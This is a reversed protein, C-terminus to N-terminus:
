LRCWSLDFTSRRLVVSRPEYIGQPKGLRRGRAQESKTLNVFLPLVLPKKLNHFRWDLGRFKGTVTDEQVAVEPPNDDDSVGRDVLKM